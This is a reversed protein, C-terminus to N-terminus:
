KMWEELMKLHAPKTALESLPVQHARFTGEVAIGDVRKPGTWGKPSILVLTPWRPRQSSDNKRAHTQIERIELVMSELTAAMDQHMQEPNEGEVFYPRYGYGSLLESLEERPIRALVTPGAIKYGNLHLIPIVAGDRVPNLFKNSHWSTALPGTEAEGDGIVCTAILGPNDFVAGCAHVL